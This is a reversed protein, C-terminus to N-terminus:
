SQVSWFYWEIEFSNLSLSFFVLFQIYIFKIYIPPYFTFIFFFITETEKM